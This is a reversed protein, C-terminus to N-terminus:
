KDEFIKYPKNDYLLEINSCNVTFYELELRNNTKSWAHVMLHFECSNKDLYLEDSICWSGILNCNEVINPSYFRLYFEIDDNNFTLELEIYDDTAYMNLILCDHFSFDNYWKPLTSKEYDLYEYQEKGSKCQGNYSEKGFYKM